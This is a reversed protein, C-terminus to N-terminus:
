TTVIAELASPLTMQGNLRFEILHGNHETILPVNLKKALWVGEAYPVIADDTSHICTWRRAKPKVKAFDIAPSFWDHLVTEPLNLIKERLAILKPYDEIQPIDIPQPLSFQRGFGATLIIHPFAPGKEFTNLYHLITLTGLSHGLLITQSPDDIESVAQDLTALWEDRKPLAPNPMQPAAVEFGRAELEKKLWPFFHMQPRSMWGHVLIVHM